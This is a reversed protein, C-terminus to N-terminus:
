FTEMPRHAKQYLLVDAGIDHRYQMGSFKIPYVRHYCELIARELDENYAHVAMVRGGSTVFEENEKKVGAFYVSPYLDKPLSIVKGVEPTNPYGKSALVVVVSYGPLFEVTDRMVGMLNHTIGDFLSLLRTEILPLLAPTEPDGFRCNYEIVWPNNKNDIMLGFYLIGKYPNGEAKMALLTPQIIWEELGHIGQDEESAVAGMGGTNLGQDFDKLKKYDKAWPLVVYDDGDTMVFVSLERGVLFEEVIITEGAPGFKGQNLFLDLETLAEEKSQCIVVGKGAALGDAKLVIPLARNEIYEKAEEFQDKKFIKFQATRIGNRKMFEKAFAKSSELQAAEKTPGIISIQKLNPDDHFFNVIGRALPAEPGVIVMDANASVFKGIEIFDTEKIPVTIVKETLTMGPNGPLVYVTEVLPDKALASAIAHERAGSGLLAIIRKQHMFNKKTKSLNLEEFSYL